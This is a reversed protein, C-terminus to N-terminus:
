NWSLVSRVIAMQNFIFPVDASAMPVVVISSAPKFYFFALGAGQRKVTGNQFHIIYQTPDAKIYKVGLM